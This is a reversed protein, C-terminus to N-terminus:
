NQKFVASLKKSSRNVLIVFFTKTLYRSMDGNDVANLTKGLMRGEANVGYMFNSLIM